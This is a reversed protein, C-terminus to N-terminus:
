EVGSSIKIAKMIEMAVQPVIANGLAKLRQVRHGAKSLEFGDLKAPLGDDVGCLETAVEVWNQNWTYQEGGSQTTLRGGNRPQKARMKRELGKSATDTTDTTRGEGEGRVESRESKDQELKRKQIRREKDTSRGDRESTRNAIIWVRDRRHPANKSVAPIILPQVEYGEGELDTCVQELVMGENWTVLGYVNEAIVWTPKTLRIVEFMEPWLYRNDTTGRRRGAQSFPQCAFGGTLLYNEWSESDQEQKHVRRQTRNSKTDAIIERIDGYVKSEPWRLKLVQQCYEDIDCFIHPSEGWVQDVAWAFGGIGSFLDLHRM